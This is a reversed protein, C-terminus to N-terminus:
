HLELATGDWRGTVADPGIALGALAHARRLAGPDRAPPPPAVEPVMGGCPHHFTLRWDAEGKAHWGGEHLVKHHYRCVLFLSDTSTSGDQSWQRWRHIQLWGRNTCRPFRCTARDPGHVLRALASSARRSRRGVDITRSGETVPVQMGCDWGDLVRRIEDRSGRVVLTATGEDDFRSWVGRRRLEDAARDVHALRQAPNYGSAVRQTQAGTVRTAVDVLDADTKPIASWTIARVEAYSLRGAACAASTAPLDPLAAAVRVQEQAMRPGM